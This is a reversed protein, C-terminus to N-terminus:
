IAASQWGPPPWGTLCACCVASVLRSYKGAPSLCGFGIVATSMVLLLADTRTNGMTHPMLLKSLDQGTGDFQAAALSQARRIAAMM